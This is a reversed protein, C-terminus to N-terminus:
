KSNNIMNILYKTFFLFYVIFIAYAVWGAFFGRFIVKSYAFLLIPVVYGLAAIIFIKWSFKKKTM